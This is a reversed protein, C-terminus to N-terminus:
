LFFCSVANFDRPRASHTPFFLRCQSKQSTRYTDDTVDYDSNVKLRSEKIREEKQRSAAEPDDDDSLDAEEEDDEEEDDSEVSESSM